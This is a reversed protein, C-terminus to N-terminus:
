YSRCQRFRTLADSDPPPTLQIRSSALDDFREVLPCIRQFADGDIRSLYVQLTSESSWIVRDVEALTSVANLLSQRQQELSLPQTTGASDESAISTASSAPAPTANAPATTAAPPQQAASRPAPLTLFVAIGVVLAGLWSLLTGQRAREAAKARIAGLQEGPIFGRLEPWLATGDLLEIRQLAAVPRADDTIRGQTVLFGSTAGKLNMENALENVEPKGLVFASGHKCSLLWRQGDKELVFDRDGSADEQDVIREFGRRSWADLVMHIFVRWSVASLAVIGAETEDRRMRYARFYLTGAIGVALGVVIAIIWNSAAAM